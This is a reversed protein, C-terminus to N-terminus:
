GGNYNFTCTAFQIKYTKLTQFFLVRDGIRSDALYTSASYSSLKVM